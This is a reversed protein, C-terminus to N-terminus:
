FYDLVVSAIFDDPILKSFIISSSDIVLLIIIEAAVFQGINMQENLVLLGGVILLGIVGWNTKPPETNNNAAADAIQLANLSQRLPELLQTTSAHIDADTSLPLNVSELRSRWDGTIGLRSMYVDQFQNYMTSYHLDGVIDGSPTLIFM